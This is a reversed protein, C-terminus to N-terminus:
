VTMAFCAFVLSVTCMGDFNRLISTKEWSSVGRIASDIKVQSISHM